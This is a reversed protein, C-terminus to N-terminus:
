ITNIIFDRFIPIKNNINFIYIINIKNPPLIILSNICIYRSLDSKKKCSVKSCKAIDPMEISIAARIPPNRPINILWYLFDDDTTKDIVFKKYVIGDIDNNPKKIGKEPIPM